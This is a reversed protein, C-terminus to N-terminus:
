RLTGIFSALVENKFWNGYRMRPSAIVLTSHKVDGSLPFLSLDNADDQNTGPHCDALGLTEWEIIHACSM